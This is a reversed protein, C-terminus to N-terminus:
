KNLQKAAEVADVPTITKINYTGDTGADYKFGKFDGKAPFKGQILKGEAGSWYLKSWQSVFKNKVLAGNNFAWYAGMHAIIGNAKKTFKKDTYWVGNKSWVAEKTAIAVDSGGNYANELDLRFMEVTVGWKNLYGYPDVHASGWGHKNAYVHTMVGAGDASTQTDLNPRSGVEKSLKALLWVYAQYGKNFEAQSTATETIEVAAYTNYNASGGIDWAGQGVPGVQTIEGTQGDVVHTFWGGELGGREGANKAQLNLIENKAPAVNGTSHAHIGTWPASGWVPVNTVVINKKITPM